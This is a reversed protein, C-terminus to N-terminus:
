DKQLIQRSGLKDRDEKKKKKSSPFNLLHKKAEQGQWFQVYVPMRSPGCMAKRHLQENLKSKSDKELQFTVDPYQFANGTISCSFPIEDEDKLIIGLALICIPEQKRQVCRTWNLHRSPLM